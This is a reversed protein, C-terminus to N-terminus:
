RSAPAQGRMEALTMSPNARVQARAERYRVAEYAILAVLVATVAGLSVLADAELALPILALLVIVAITRQRNLTGVNRLRLAIHGLLYLAVGGCLALAPITKLPEDVAGFTKKLGLALLVIGAIMPFHLYTYSDRALPAQEGPPAEVLRREAVIAVIDFYAWWMAAVAAMGLLAAVVEGPDLTLDAAAGIALLSEGLAIIVILGYREAFHRPHIHFGSSGFLLPTSWDVLIAIIWVSTRAGGDLLGAVILLASGLLLGPALRGIAELNYTDGERRTNRMYLVLHMARVFFYACGFLIGRDGFAEPISLSVILMAGMASFVAVRNLNENTDITNTLWAYAAWAWWVAAMILMGEGLGAWSPDDALAVTVQTFSLVFVLDFFLELPAVREEVPGATAM